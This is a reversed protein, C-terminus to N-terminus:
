DLHSRKANKFMVCMGVIVLVILFLWTLSTSGNKLWMEHDYGVTRADIPSQEDPDSSAARCLVPALLVFAMAATTLLRRALSSLQKSMIAMM